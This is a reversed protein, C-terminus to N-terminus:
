VLAQVSVLVSIDLIEMTSTDERCGAGGGGPYPMGKPVRTRRCGLGTNRSKIETVWM